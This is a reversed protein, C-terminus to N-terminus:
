KVARALFYGGVLGAVVGLGIGLWLGSFGSIMEKNAEQTKDFCEQAARDTLYENQQQLVRLKLDIKQVQEGTYWYGVTLQGAYDWTLKSYSTPAPSPASYVADDAVARYPALLALVLVIATVRM